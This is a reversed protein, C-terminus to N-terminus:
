SNQINQPDQIEIKNRLRQDPARIVIAESNTAQAQM